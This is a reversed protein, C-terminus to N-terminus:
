TAPCLIFEPTSSLILPKYIYMRGYYLYPVQLETRTKKSFIARRQTEVDKRLSTNMDLHFNDLVTKSWKGAYLSSHQVANCVYFLLLSSPMLFFSFLILWCNHCKQFMSYWTFFIVLPWLVWLCCIKCDLWAQAIGFGVSNRCWVMEGFCM